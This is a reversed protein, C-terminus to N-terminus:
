YILYENSHKLHLSRSDFDGAARFNQLNQSVKLACNKPNINKNVSLKLEEDPKLFFEAITNDNQFSFQIKVHSSFM